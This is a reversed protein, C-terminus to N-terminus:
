IISADSRDVKTGKGGAMKKHLKSAKMQLKKMKKNLKKMRKALKSKKQKKGM